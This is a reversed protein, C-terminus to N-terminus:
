RRSEKMDEWLGLAAVSGIGCILAQFLVVWRWGVLALLDTWLYHEIPVVVGLASLVFMAFLLTRM